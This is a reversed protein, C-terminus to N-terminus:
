PQLSFFTFYRCQINSNQFSVTHFGSIWRAPSEGGLGHGSQLRHPEILHGVRKLSVKFRRRKVVDIQRNVKCALRKPTFLRTRKYPFHRQSPGHEIDIDIIRIPVAPLSISLFCILYCCLDELAFTLDISPRRQGIGKCDPNYCCM